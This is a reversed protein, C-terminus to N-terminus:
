KTKNTTRTERSANKNLLQVIKFLMLNFLNRESNLCEVRCSVIQQKFNTAYDAIYNINVKASACNQYM